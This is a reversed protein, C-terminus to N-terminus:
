VKIRMVSYIKDHELEPLLRKWSEPPRATWQEIYTIPLGGKEKLKVNCEAIWARAESMAERLITQTDILSPSECQLQLLLVYPRDYNSQIYACLHGVVAEPGLMVWYGAVLPTEIWRKQIDTMLMEVNVNDGYETLFQRIRGEFSPWLRWSEPDDKQLRYLELAM